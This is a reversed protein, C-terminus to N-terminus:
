PRHRDPFSKFLTLSAFAAENLTDILRNDGGFRTTRLRFLPLAM